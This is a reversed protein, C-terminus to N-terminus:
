LSPLPLNSGKEDHVLSIRNLGFISLLNMIVVVVLVALFGYEFLPLGMRAAIVRGFSLCAIYLGMLTARSDTQLSTAMSISSVILFEFTLYFFFLGIYAGVPSRAILPLLLAALCNALVGYRVSRIPGARDTLVGVLSEGFLESLGIVLAASALAALQMNFTSELWVGFTVSVIENAGSLLFGVLLGYRASRRSLISKIRTWLPVRQGTERKGEPILLYVGILSGVALVGIVLFPADWDAVMLLRGVALAGVLYSMSWGLEVIAIAEGRREPAIEDGIFAQIAPDFAYKGLAALFLGLVFVDFRPWFVISFVGGTFLSLGLGMGFKRGRSDALRAVFPSTLGSMSRIAIAGTFTAPSVGLARSFVPLFPYVMRHLTNIVMRVVMLFLLLGIQHPNRKKSQRNPDPESM